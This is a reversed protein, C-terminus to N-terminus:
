AAHFLLGYRIGCSKIQTHIVTMRQSTRLFRQPCYSQLGSIKTSFDVVSMSFVILRSFHTHASHYIMGKIFMPQLACQIGTTTHQGVGTPFPSGAQLIRGTILYKHTATIMPSLLVVPHLTVSRHSAAHIKTM